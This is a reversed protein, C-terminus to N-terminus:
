GAQRAIRLAVGTNSFTGYPVFDTLCRIAPSNRARSARFADRVVAGRMSALVSKVLPPRNTSSPALPLILKRLDVAAPKAINANTTSADPTALAWVSEAPLSLAGDGFDSWVDRTVISTEPPSFSAGTSFALM